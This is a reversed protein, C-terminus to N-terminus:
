ALGTLQLPHKFAVPFLTRLSVLSFSLVRYCFFFLLSFLSRFRRASFFIFIFFLFSLLFLPLSPPNLLFSLPSLLLPFLFTILQLHAPPNLVFGVVSTLRLALCLRSLPLHNHTTRQQQQQQTITGRIKSIRVNGLRAQNAGDIRQAADELEEDSAEPLPVYYYGIALLITILAIGLYAWQTNM